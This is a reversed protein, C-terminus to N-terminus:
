AKDDAYFDKLWAEAEKYEDKVRRLLKKMEVLAEDLTLDKNATEDRLHGVHQINECTLQVRSLGLAASSGKLFHGLSSLSQLDKDTFAVDMEKFTKEAQDFYDWVMPQSFDHSDEDEDLELIQNFTDMDVVPEETASPTSPVPVVSKKPELPSKSEVELIEKLKVPEIAVHL